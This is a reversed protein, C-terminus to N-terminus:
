PLPDFAQEDWAEFSKLIDDPWEEFDDAMGIKGKLAGFKRPKGDKTFTWKGNVFYPQGDPGVTGPPLIGVPPASTFSMPMERVGTAPPQDENLFAKVMASLSTGQEAARIRARRWTDDDLSITVNKM